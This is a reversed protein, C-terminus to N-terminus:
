REYNYKSTDLSSPKGALYDKVMDRKTLTVQQPPTVAALRHTVMNTIPNYKPVMTGNPMKGIIYNQYHEHLNNHLIHRPRGTKLSFDTVYEHYPHKSTLYSYLEGYETPLKRHRHKHRHKKKPALKGGSKEHESESSSSSDRDRVEERHPDEVVTDLNIKSM